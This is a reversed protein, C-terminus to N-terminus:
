QYRKKQAYFMEYYKGKMLMLESHCGQEKIEGSEMLIIKDCIQAFSLQHTIILCTNAGSIKEYNKYLKEEAIPDLAGSPEDLLFIRGSQYLARALLLKQKEGGSLEVGDQDMIRSLFTDGRNPLKELVENLESLEIASQLSEANVNQSLTINDFVSYPLLTGSQLVVSLYHYYEKMPIRQINTGNIYITGSQPLYLRCLLKIVTSKGAGNPGLLAVKSGAPIVFSLNQIAPKNAGPYTFCVNEFRIECPSSDLDLPDGSYLTNCAANEEAINWYSDFRKTEKHVTSLNELFTQLIATFQIAGLSYTLFSGIGLKGHLVHVSIWIYIIVNRFLDNLLLLGQFPLKEKFTVKKIETISRAYKQGYTGILGTLPFIRVDKALSEEMLLDYSAEFKRGNEQELEWGKKEKQNISNNLIVSAIVAFMIYLNLFPSIQGIIWAMGIGSAIIGLMEYGVTLIKGIGIAPNMSAQRAKELNEMYQSDLTRHYPTTLAKSLLDQLVAYRVKNMRMWAKNNLLISTSLAVAAALGIAGAITLERYSHNIVASAVYEPFLVWLINFFATMTAYLVWNAFLIKSTRFMTRLILNLTRKM